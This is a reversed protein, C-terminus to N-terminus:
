DTLRLIVSSDISLSLIKLESVHLFTIQRQRHRLIMFVTDLLEVYKTMYYVWLGHGVLADENCSFLSHPWNRALAIIIFVVSYLSVLSCAFNYVM